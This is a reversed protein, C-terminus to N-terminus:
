FGGFLDQQMSEAEQRKQRLAEKREEEKKKQAEREAVAKKELELKYQRVAEAKAEEKESETLDVHGSVVIRKIGSDGEQEKIDDEDYYHRVMAFIESDDWGCQGSAKVQALIYRCAGEPSKKEKQEVQKRFLEDKEMESEIYEAIRQEFYKTVKEAM